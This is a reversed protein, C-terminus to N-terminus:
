EHRGFFPSLTKVQPLLTGYLHPLGPATTIIRQLEVVLSHRYRVPDLMPSVSSTENVINGHGAM